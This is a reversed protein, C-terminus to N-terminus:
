DNYILGFVTPSVRKRLVENASRSLGLVVCRPKQWERELEGRSNKQAHTHDEHRERWTPEDVMVTFRLSAFDKSLESIERLVM